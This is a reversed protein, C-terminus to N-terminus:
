LVNGNMEQKNQEMEKEASIAMVDESWKKMKEIMEFFSATQDTESIDLTETEEGIDDSINEKQSIDRIHKIENALREATDSIDPNEFARSSLADLVAGYDQESLCEMVSKQMEPLFEKNDGCIIEASKLAIYATYIDSNKLAEVEARLSKNEKELLEIRKLIAELDTEIESM